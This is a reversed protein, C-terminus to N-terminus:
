FRSCSGAAISGTAPDPLTKIKMEGIDCEMQFLCILLFIMIIKVSTIGASAAIFRRFSNLMFWGAAFTDLKPAGM